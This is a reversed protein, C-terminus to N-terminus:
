ATMPAHFARPCYPQWGCSELVNSASLGGVILRDPAFKYDLPWPPRSYVAAVSGGRAIILRYAHLHLPALANHPRQGMLRAIYEFRM